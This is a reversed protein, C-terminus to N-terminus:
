KYSLKARTFNFSCLLDCAIIGCQACIDMLTQGKNKSIITVTKGLPNKVKSADIMFCDMCVKGIIPCLVKGVQVSQTDAFRFHALDAYGCPVVAVTM